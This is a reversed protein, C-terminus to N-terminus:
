AIKELLTMKKRRDCPFSFKFSLSMERTEGADMATGFSLFFPDGTLWMGVKGFAASHFAECLCASSTGQGHFLVYCLCPRAIDTCFCSCDTQVRSQRKNSCLARVLGFSHVNEVAYCLADWQAAALLILAFLHFGM